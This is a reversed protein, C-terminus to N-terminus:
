LDGVERVLRERLEAKAMEYDQVHSCYCQGFYSIWIVQSETFVSCGTEREGARLQWWGPYMEFWNLFDEGM